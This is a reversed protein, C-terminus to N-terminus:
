SLIDEESLPRSCNPCGSTEHHCNNCHVTVPAGAPGLLRPEDLVSAETTQCNSAGLHQYLCGTCLYGPSAIWALAGNADIPVTGLWGCRPCLRVYHGQVIEIDLDLARPPLGNTKALNADTTQSTYVTTLTM